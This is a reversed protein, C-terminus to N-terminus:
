EEGEPVSIGAAKLKEADTEDVVEDAQGERYVTRQMFTRNSIVDYAEKVTSLKSSMFTEKKLILKHQVM